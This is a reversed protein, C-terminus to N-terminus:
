RFLNTEFPVKSTTLPCKLLADEIIVTRITLNGRLMLIKTETKEREKKVIEM